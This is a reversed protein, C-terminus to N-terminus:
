NGTAAKWQVSSTRHQGDSVPRDIEVLAYTNGGSAVVVVLELGPGRKGSIRKLTESATPSLGPMVAETFRWDAIFLLTLTQKQASYEDRMRSLKVEAQESSLQELKAILDRALKGGLRDTADIIFGVPDDSASDMVMRVITDKHFALLTRRTLQGSASMGSM